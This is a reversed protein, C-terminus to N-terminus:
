ASDKEYSNLLGKVSRELTEIAWKRSHLDSALFWRTAIGQYIASIGQAVSECDMNQSFAGEAVGQVAAEKLLVVWKGFWDHFIKRYDDDHVVVAMFDFLVPYGILADPDDPDYLWTFSLLKDLPDDFQDMTEKGRIFIRDFFETFAALFLERKSKYYHALGGKSFGSARCIDDMTVNASGRAAITTLAAEIIQSRRITEIEILPPM